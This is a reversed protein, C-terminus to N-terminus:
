RNSNRGDPKRDDVPPQAPSAGPIPVHSNLIASNDRLIFADIFIAGESRDIGGERRADPKEGTGTLTKLGVRPHRM